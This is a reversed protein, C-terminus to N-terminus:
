GDAQVPEPKLHLAAYLQPRMRQWNERVYADGPRGQYSWTLRKANLGVFHAGCRGLRQVHPPFPGCITV